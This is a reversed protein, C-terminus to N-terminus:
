RKKELVIISADDDLCLNKGMKVEIPEKLGAEAVIRNVLSKEIDALSLLYADGKKGGLNDVYNQCLVSHTVQGIFREPTDEVVNFICGRVLYSYRIVRGLDHIDRIEDMKLLDKAEMIHEPGYRLWTNKHLTKAKELGEESEICSFFAYDYASIAELEAVAQVEPTQGMDKMTSFLIEKDSERIIM